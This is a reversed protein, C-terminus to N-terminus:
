QGFPNQRYAHKKNATEQTVNQSGAEKKWGLAESLPAGCHPCSTEDCEPHFIGGCKKCTSPM